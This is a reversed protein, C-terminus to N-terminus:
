IRFRHEDYSEARADRGAAKHHIGPDLPDHDALHLGDDWWGGSAIEPLLIVIDHVIWAHLDDVVVRPVVDEGCALLEVDDSGIRDMGPDLAAGCKIGLFIELQYLLM